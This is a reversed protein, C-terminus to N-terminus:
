VKFIKVQRLQTLIFKPDLFSHNKVTRREIDLLSFLEFDVHIGILVGFVFMTASIFQWRLCITTVTSDVTYEADQGFWVMILAKDHSAM